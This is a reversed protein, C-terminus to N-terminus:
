SLKYAKVQSFCDWRVHSARLNPWFRNQRDLVHVLVSNDALPCQDQEGEPNWAWPIWGNHYTPEEKSQEKAYEQNEVPTEEAVFVKASDRLNRKFEATLRMQNGYHVIKQGDYVAQKLPDTEPKPDGMRAAATRWVAKFVCFEDPTMQLAEAIDECEAQYPAQGERRPRQVQALYYSVQGGTAEKSM